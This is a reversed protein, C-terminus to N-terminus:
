ELWSVRAKSRLSGALTAAATGAGVFLDIRSAGRIAAGTDMAVVVRRLISGDRMPATLLGISGLPSWRPDAAVSRFPVLAVGFAGTPGQEAPVDLERFFIFRPNTHLVELAEDPHARLWEKIAPATAEAPTFVGRSVLESGISHYEHGNNGAYGVRATTGDALRLRGSGQVHLFFSEIPDDLWFLEIGRGELAGGDIERRSASVATGLGPPGYLPHRFRGGPERRAALIPEYYGTLLIEVPARLPTRDAVTEDVSRGAALEAIMADLLRSRPGTEAGLGAKALRLAVLLSGSDGGDRFSAPGGLAAEPRGLAVALALGCFLM